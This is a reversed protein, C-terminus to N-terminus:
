FKYKNYIVCIRMRPTDFNFSKIPICHNQHCRCITNTAICPNTDDSISLMHIYSMM